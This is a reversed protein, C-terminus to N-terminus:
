TAPFAAPRIENVVSLVAAELALDKPLGPKMDNALIRNNGADFVYGSRNAERPCSVDGPQYRVAWRLELRPALQAPILRGVDIRVDVSSPSARVKVENAAVQRGSAEQTRSSLRISVHVRFM